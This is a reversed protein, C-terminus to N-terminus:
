GVPVCPYVGNINQHFFAGKSHSKMFENYVSRPVNYYCYRGTTKFTVYLEGKYFEIADICSSDVKVEPFKDRTQNEKAPEQNPAQPNQDNQRRAMTASTCPSKASGSSKNICSGQKKKSKQKGSYRAGSSPSCCLIVFFAICCVFILISINDDKQKAEETECVPEGSRNGSEKNGGSGSSYGRQDNFSYPCDIHGDGDMDYHSHAPYGHHYHYEGTSYDYHGGNGDTKGSHASAPFVIAILVMIPVILRYIRRKM